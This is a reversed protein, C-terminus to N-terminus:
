GSLEIVGAMGDTGDSHLSCYFQHTGPPLEDLEVITESGPGVNVLIGFEDMTFDHVFADSNTLLLRRDEDVSAAAPVFQFDVMDLVTADAADAADVTTRTMLFGGVSVVAGVGIVVLSAKGIRMGTAGMGADGGGRRRLAGVGGVLAFPVGFLFLLGAMFEFPSFPQLVGFVVFWLGLIALVTAVLGVVKLWRRDLRGIMWALLGFVSLLAAAFVADGTSTSVLAGLLFVGFAGALLALGFAQASMALASTGQTRSVVTREDTM